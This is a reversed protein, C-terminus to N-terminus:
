GDGDSILIPVCDATLIGLVAGPLMSVLADAEAEAVREPLVGDVILAVRAGHVQKAMFLSDLSFGGAAAVRKRNREVCAPDDGWKAGLNLTAYRGASVGGRRTTFGHRVGRLKPSSLLLM